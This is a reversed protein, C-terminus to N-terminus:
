ERVIEQVLVNLTCNSAFEGNISLMYDLTLDVMAEPNDGFEMKETVIEADLQGYPTSIVSAYPEGLIYYLETTMIGSKSYVVEGPSIRIRCKHEEGDSDTEDYSLYIKEGNEMYTGNVILQMDGDENGGAHLGSIKILVDKKM